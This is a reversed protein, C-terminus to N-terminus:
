AHPYIDAAVLMSFLQEASDYVQQIQYMCFCHAAKANETVPAQHQCLM